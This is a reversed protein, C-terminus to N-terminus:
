INECYVDALHWLFVVFWLMRLCYVNGCKVICWKYHILRNWSCFGMWWVSNLLGKTRNQISYVLKSDDDNSAPRRFLTVGLSLFPPLKDVLCGLRWQTVDFKSAYEFYYMYVIFPCLSLSGLLLVSCSMSINWQWWLYATARVSHPPKKHLKTFIAALFLSHRRFFKRM